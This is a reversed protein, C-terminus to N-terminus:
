SVQMRREHCFQEHDHIYDSPDHPRSALVVCITEPTLDHLERWVMPGIYVADRPGNLTVEEWELGDHLVLRVQGSLCILLQELVRHAHRGRVADPVSGQIFYAREISNLGDPSSEYVSLLGRTDDQSQILVRRWGSKSGGAVM